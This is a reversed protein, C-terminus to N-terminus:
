GMKQDTFNLSAFRARLILAISDHLLDVRQQGIFLQVDSFRFPTSEQNSDTYEGLRWLLFFVATIIMAAVAVLFSNSSTSHQALYAIHCIVQIPVLKVKCPPSDKKKWAAVM